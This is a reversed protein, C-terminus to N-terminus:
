QLWKSAKASFKNLIEMWTEFSIPSEVYGVMDAPRRFPAEDVEAFRYNSFRARYTEARQGGAEDTSRFTAEVQVLNQDDYWLSYDNGQLAFDYRYVTGEDWTEKQATSLLAVYAAAMINQTVAYLLNEDATYSVNEQVYYSGASVEVGLVSNSKSVFEYLRGDAYLKRYVVDADDPSCFVYAYDNGSKYCGVSLKQEGTEDIVTLAMDFSLSEAAQVKNSFNVEAGNLKRSLDCGALVALVVVVAVVAAVLRSLKKM